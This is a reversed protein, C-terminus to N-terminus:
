VSLYVKMEAVFFASKCRSDFNSLVYEFSENRMILIASRVLSLLVSIIRGGLAVKRRPARRCFGREYKGYDQSSRTVLVVSSDQVEIM